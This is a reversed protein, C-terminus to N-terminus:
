LRLTHRHHPPLTARKWIFPQGRGRQGGSAARRLSRNMNSHSDAPWLFVFLGFCFGGEIAINCFVKNLEWSNEVSSKKPGSIQFLSFPSYTNQCEVLFLHSPLFTKKEKKQVRTSSRRISSFTRNFNSKSFTKATTTSLTYYTSTCWQKWTNFATLVM